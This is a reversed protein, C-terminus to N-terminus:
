IGVISISSFTAVASKNFNAVVFAKVPTRARLFISSERDSISNDIITIKKSQSTAQTAPAPTNIPRFNSFARSLPVHPLFTVEGTWTNGQRAHGRLKARYIFWRRYRLSVPICLSVHMGRMWLKRKNFYSTKKRERERFHYPYPYPHKVSSIVLARLARASNTFPFYAYGTGCFLNNGPTTSAM